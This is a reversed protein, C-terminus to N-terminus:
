PVENWAAWGFARLALWAAWAKWAPAGNEIMVKRHTRDALARSTIEPHRYLYDHVIAAEPYEWPPLFNWLGRPVSHFDTSFGEPVVLSIEPSDYFYPFLLVGYRGNDSLEIVLRAMISTGIFTVVILFPASSTVKLLLPCVV